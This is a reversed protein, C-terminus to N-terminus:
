PAPPALRVRAPEKPGVQAPAPQSLGRTLSRIIAGSRRQLAVVVVLLVVLLAVKTIDRRPILQLFTKDEPLEPEVPRRRAEGRAAPDGDHQHTV